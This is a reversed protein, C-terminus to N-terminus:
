GDIDSFPSDGGSSGGHNGNNGYGGSGNNGSGGFESFPEDSGAGNGNQSGNDRFPDDGGTSGYNGGGYGNGNNGGYGGYPSNNYGGYGGGYGSGPAGYRRYYAERRKRLYEGYDIPQKNRLVFVIIPFAMPIFLSVLSLATCSSPAYKKFLASAVLFLFISYLLEPISLILSSINYYGILFTAFKSEPTYGGVTKFQYDIVRGSAAHTIPYLVYNYHLTVETFITFAGLLVAVIQAVMVFLGANKMRQGFLRTDGALRGAYLMNVFPIFALYRKEINRRKAMAYLGFGLLLELIAWVGVGASIAAAYLKVNAHLSETGNVYRYMTIFSDFIRYICM